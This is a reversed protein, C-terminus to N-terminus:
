PGFWAFMMMFMFFAWSMCVFSAMIYSLLKKNNWLAVVTLVIFTLMPGVLILGQMVNCTIMKHALEPDLAVHLLEPVSQNAGALMIGVIAIPIALAIIVSDIIITKKMRRLWFTM